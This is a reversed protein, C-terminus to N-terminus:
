KNSNKKVIELNAYFAERFPKIRLYEQKSISGEFRVSKGSMRYSVKDPNKVADEFRERSQRMLELIAYHEPTYKKPMFHPDKFLRIKAETFTLPPQIVVEQETDEPLVDEKKVEGKGLLEDLAAQQVKLTELDDAM